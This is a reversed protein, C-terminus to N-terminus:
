ELDGGACFTQGAAALVIARTSNQGGIGHAVDTLEDMMLASLANRKDPRNLTVTVVGRDDTVVDLTQYSM